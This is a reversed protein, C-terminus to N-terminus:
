RSSRGTFGVLVGIKMDAHAASGMMTAAAAALLLRRM